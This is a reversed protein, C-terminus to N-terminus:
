GVCSVIVASVMGPPSPCLYRDSKWATVYATNDFLSNNPIHPVRTQIIHITFKASGKRSTVDCQRNLFANM